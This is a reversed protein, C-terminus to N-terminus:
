EQRPQEGAVDALLKMEEDSFRSKVDALRKRRDEPTMLRLIQMEKRVAQRREQPLSMLAEYRGQLLKREDDSLLQWTQLLAEAQKRRQPNMQNLLRQQQQPPLALFQDLAGQRLQQKIQQKQKQTLKAKAQPDDQAHSLGAGALMAALLIVSRLSRM